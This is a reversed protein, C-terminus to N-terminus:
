GLAWFDGVLGHSAFLSSAEQPSPPRWDEDLRAAYWDVSMEFIQQVPAIYGIAQNHERLWSSLESESRFGHM